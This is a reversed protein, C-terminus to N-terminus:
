REGGVGVPREVGDRRVHRDRGACRNRRQAVLEGHAGHVQREVPLCEGDLRESDGVVAAPRDVHVTTGAEGVLIEIESTASELNGSAVM